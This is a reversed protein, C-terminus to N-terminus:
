ARLGRGSCHVHVKTNGCHLYSLKMDNLPLLDHIDTDDCWVQTLKMGKLASLDAVKTKGCNIFNLNMGQLSWLDTVMTHYCDVSTLEPFARLPSLDAVKAGSLSIEKVAREDKDLNRTLTGDFDPNRKMLEAKVAEVQKDAKMAAVSKVWADFAAQQADAEKWFEAAPKGNIKELTKISRLIETDRFPKFDCSLDKLPMGKLPSLDAVKSNNCHLITLKKMGKLPTLDSIRFTAAVDLYFLPMDMLPSLDSVKTWGCSLTGLKMGRLPSLDSVNTSWFSLSTLKMDKLPWLDTLKGKGAQSGPCILNRLGTLARVPSIDTVDDTLFELQTVVGGDIKEKVTGDFGPNRKMLEAKVAEIQQEPKMATVTKVWADFASREADAERWFDNADKLNIKELSKISRLIEGDRLLKFDLRIHKLPMGKLPALDTMKSNHFSINELKMDKLPSLDAVRSDHVSLYVLKMDKLPSLDSVPSGGADLKTLPMGKLPTLDGIPAYYVILEKLNLGKLPTLDKVRTGGVSLQALEQMGELPSLDAAPTHFALLRILPMGKLPKLDAVHSDHCCLDTLRMGELPSLDSVQSNGINLYTLDMGRLPSLDVLKGSKQQFAGGNLTLSKLGTLARLPMIDAVDDTVISLSAVVGKEIKKDTVKGDFGPNRKMLEAKVAEIQQEPKMAAVAKLWAPDLPPLASAGVEKWFEAAPKGNIKELTKISRLIETDRFPKFDCSLDKLPIGKLPSLDSVQTHNCGLTTLKMGKLPSLDSVPTAACSLWTLPMDKLPSLDSVRTYNCGLTTLKMDRLPSLDSVKTKLCFLTTLKMDRLPSLDSVQTSDCNLYTLKVGKLPSLDSVQTHNCNLSTLNMDKLPSLDALKGNRKIHDGTGTVTLKLLGTLAQVPSIDTVNDTLFHLETVVGAKDINHSEIKGDFGPNRKVLEAKVAEVQEKAPLAAVMKLWAPDLPPFTNPLGEVKVWKAGVIKGHHGNGSSDKLVDGQGEDFRYLILTKDDNEFRENIPVTGGKNRVVKSVRFQHIQGKFM